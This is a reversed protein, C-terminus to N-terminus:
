QLITEEDFVVDRSILTRSPKGNMCWIKYGKIGEPYGIFFGKVARPELKGQSIHAYAPCGFVRLNSLNQPKGSWVEQPTKFDLASSPSRNILYIATNVAEAWFHKSLNANLLMCRVKEIFTRNMREALGNKQPTNRVTRHRAIGKSKCFNEFDKNCYELGNDTRLRKLRKETQNEMLATWEKFKEFAENKYKLVYVWVRRSYDDIFTIFYRAGGHSPVQSPGWLDSHVYDLTQKTEKKGPNFRHRTAKGFVCKECFQLSTIQDNGLLGQKSLGKMGKESMHTLRMHWLKTRDSSVSATIAPKTTSGTLVYLGNRRIGKMIVLGNEEIQLNGNEAKINCRAQDIVGLSILNRKLEPVYRVHKLDREIGDFMRINISGIGAVKCALNNGLLVKGGDVQEFTKFFDINPCM